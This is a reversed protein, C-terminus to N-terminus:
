GKPSLADRVRNLEAILADIRNQLKGADDISKAATPKVAAIGAETLDKSLATQIDM